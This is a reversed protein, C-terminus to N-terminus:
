DEVLLSGIMTDPYLSDYYPYEGVKSFVMEFAEKSKLPNSNQQPFYSNSNVSHDVTDKNTWVVRTNKRIRIKKPVFTNNEISIGIDPPIDPRGVHDEFNGSLRRDITFQFSGSQCNGDLWCTTYRVTYLGNPAAADMDRRMARKNSDIRGTGVGYEAGDKTISISSPATLALDVDVVVNVPAAAFTSAHQPTNSVWHPVKVPSEFIDSSQQGQPVVMPQPPVLFRVVLITVIIIASWRLGLKM